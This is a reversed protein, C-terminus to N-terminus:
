TPLMADTLHQAMGLVRGGAKEWSFDSNARTRARESMLRRREEDAILSLAKEVFDNNDDPEFLLGTEEDDVLMEIQGIRPAVVPTGVALSEVIKLPSFYFNAQSLYPAVSIDMAALHGPVDAHPIRGTFFARRDLGRLAIREKARTLEPGEGVCLLHVDPHKHAMAIFGDILFDIGHWPKFSGIFGIVPNNGIGYRQRIAAGGVNPNFFDTDVGNPVTLIKKAEIGCSGVFRAIEDSVAIICDAERFSAIEAITAIDKLVLGRFQEQERILPANVELIRPIGLSRAVTGGASHFLAHREYIFDPRFGQKVFAALAHACFSRDYALRQLERRTTQDDLATLPLGWGLCERELASVDTEVPIEILTGPPPANGEGLNACLLVIEHGHRALATVFERVHVSAGKDGLVPIGRDPNLYLIRM